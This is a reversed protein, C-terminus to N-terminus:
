HIALDAVRGFRQQREVVAAAEQRRGEDGRRDAHVGRRAPYVVRRGVFDAPDAEDRVLQRNQPRFHTARSNDSPKCLSYDPLMGSYM